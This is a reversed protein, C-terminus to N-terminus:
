FNTYYIYDMLVNQATFGTLTAVNTYGKSQSSISINKVTAEATNIITNARASAEGQIVTITRQANSSQVSIESTIASAQASANAMATKQSTVQNDVLTKEKQDPLEIKLIQVGVCHASTLSIWDDITKQLVDGVM